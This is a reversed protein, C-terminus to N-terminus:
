KEVPCSTNPQIRASGKAMTVRLTKGLKFDCERGAQVATKTEYGFKYTIQVAEIYTDGSVVADGVLGGVIGAGAATQKNKSSGLLAGFLAGAKAANKKNASNDVKMQAPMILLIEVIDSHMEQNAASADYVNAQQDMGVNACGTFLITISLLVPQLIKKIM